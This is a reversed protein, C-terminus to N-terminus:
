AAKHKYILRAGLDSNSYSASYNVYFRFPGAHDGSSWSGGFGACYGAYLHAHDAWYTTTSGGTAKITFGGENTGQIDKMYNGTNSTLGSPKTFPYDTGNDKFDKFATKVNRASDCYIGDVWYLLNGWFDEINLFCMQQKGTTEGYCVGKANTGGTATAASNGDVFGRGLASQGNRNKYMILYLCQLLTVPYFSILQYGTGRAQAATRAATLTISAAPAKGSVSYLKSSEQYALYAGIYIKDCDGEADLSHARYCYGHADPDDTVSIYHSTGDSTIRYGLKPIEIMVDGVSPDTITAPSGDAKQALNLPNLYYQVVGDKVLCPKINQFIPTDKWANYGAAMGAADDVYTVSTEPNSNDIAVKVTYHKYSTQKMQDVVTKLNDTATQANNAATQATKASDYAQKVASPTAAETTSNSDVATNLKTRGYVTTTAIGGNEMVWNTGDYIFEVLEGAAWMNEMSATTGYKVIGKAGTGNVNLTPSAATNANTFKVAVRAGAALAFGALAVTKAVTSAAEGCTGYHTIPKSGDFAMGDVTRETALKGASDAQKKVAATNRMLGEIVPNVIADANVPDSNQIKRINEDYQPNEPVTYYQDAM